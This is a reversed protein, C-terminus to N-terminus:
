YGFTFGLDQSFFSCRTVEFLFLLNNRAGDQRRKGGGQTSNDSCVTYVLFTVLTFSARSNVPKIM